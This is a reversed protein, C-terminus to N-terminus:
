SATKQNLRHDRATVLDCLAEALAEPSRSLHGGDGYFQKACAEILMEEGQEAFREGEPFDAAGALVLGLGVAAINGWTVGAGAIESMGVLPAALSGGSAFIAGGVLVAGLIAKATGKRM